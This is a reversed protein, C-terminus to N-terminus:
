EQATKTVRAGDEDSKRVNSKLNSEAIQSVEAGDEDNRRGQGCELLHHSVEHPAVNRALHQGIIDMTNKVKRSKVSAVVLKVM